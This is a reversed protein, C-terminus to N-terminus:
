ALIAHILSLHVTNWQFPIEDNRLNECQLVVSCSLNLSLKSCIDETLYMKYYISILDLDILNVHNSTDLIFLVLLVKYYSLCM